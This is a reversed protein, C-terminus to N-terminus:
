AGAAELSVEDAFAFHAGMGSYSLMRRLRPHAGRLVLRAARTKLRNDLRLLAGIGASDLYVVARVDLMLVEGARSVLFAAQADLEPVTAADLEGALVFVGDDTSPRIQLPM